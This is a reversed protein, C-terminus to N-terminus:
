EFSRILLDCNVPKIGIERSWVSLQGIHHVEHTVIHQLVKKYTFTYEENKGSISVAKNHYDGSQRELFTETIKKTYASYAKVEDLNTMTEKQPYCNSEGLLHNMWLLECDIIHILNKVIGGMGGTRTKNLEEVDVSECWNFWDERVQWNYHFLDLM